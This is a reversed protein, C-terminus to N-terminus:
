RSMSGRANPREYHLVSDHAHADPVCAGETQLVLAVEAESFVAQSQRVTRSIDLPKLIIRSTRKGYYVSLQPSMSEKESYSPKFEPDTEKAARRAPRPQEDMGEDEEEDSGGVGVLEVFRTKANATLQTEWSM